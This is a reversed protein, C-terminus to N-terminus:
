IGRRFFKLEGNVSMRFDTELEPGLDDRNDTGNLWRRTKGWERATENKRDRNNEAWERMYEKRCDDCVRRM